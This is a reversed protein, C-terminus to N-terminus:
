IVPIACVRLLKHRTIFFNNDALKNSAFFRCCYSYRSSIHIAALIVIEKIYKFEAASKSCFFYVGIFLTSVDRTVM